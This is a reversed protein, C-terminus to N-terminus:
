KHRNQEDELLWQDIIPKFPDLKSKQELNVPPKPSFDEQQIYKKVTKPDLNLEKAIQYPGLDSRQMEKIQYVQNM